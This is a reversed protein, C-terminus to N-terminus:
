PSCSRPVTQAMGRVKLGMILSEGEVYAFSMNVNGPYRHDLDVPGNLQTGSLRSQLGERLRQELRRIHRSDAEMEKESMVPLPHPCSCPVVHLAIEVQIFSRTTKVAELNRLLIQWLYSGSSAGKGAQGGRMGEGPRRGATHAGYREQPRAGARRGIHNGRSARPPTQAPSPPFFPRFHSLGHFYTSDPGNVLRLLQFL